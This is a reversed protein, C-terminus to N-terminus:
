HTSLLKREDFSCGPSAAPLVGGGVYQYKLGETTDRIGPHTYITGPKKKTRWVLAYVRDGVKRDKLEEGTILTHDIVVERGKYKGKCVREVRYKVLRYHPLVGSPLGRGFVPSMDLIVGEIIVANDDKGGPRDAGGSPAYLAACALAALLLKRM